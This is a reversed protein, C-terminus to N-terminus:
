YQGILPQSPARLQYSDAAFCPQFGVARAVAQSALNDYTTTYAACSMRDVISAAVASVLARALGRGRWAPHTWVGVVEESDAHPYGSSARSVIQGDQILAWPERDEDFLREFYSRSWGCSSRAVLATDKISLRRIAPHPHPILGDRDVLYGYVGTGIARMAYSRALAEGIWPRHISVVDRRDIPFDLLLEDLAAADEADVRIWDPDPNFPGPGRVIVGAVAAGRFVVRLAAVAEYRLALVLERNVYPDRNLYDLADAYHRLHENMLHARLRAHVYCVPICRVPALM